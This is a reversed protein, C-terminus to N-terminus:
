NNIRLQGEVWRNMKEELVHLPLCGENLVENHFKRIDFKDGLKQEAKARLERIKLQGIKYGLAQGPIAIYREIESTIAAEDEGENDLSFQIAQERTWGKMHMGVDVVLRIARHMEESLAGFYQYPDKYIGLEKGLSETYLAWGEGYAGYWIYRRFEPLSTNEITLMNQYHHGPIAEHLFLDEMAFTNYKAPNPIPTYFIGPRSGDATGQNYEASASAERFKETQRVEFKSRPTKDFLKSLQPKIANHINNFSDIVSAASKFPFFQKDTRMFEFFAKMDGEFGTEAKIKEMEAHLRKVESMGLNFISDPTLDTTTWYKALFAYQEKGGPVEGLGISTRCNPIYENKIFDYMMKYTSIINKEISASYLETLRKKDDTSFDAPFEKVPLYFTNEKLPVTMQEMQPLVKKMLVQPVTIGEKIGTRMNAVAQECWAPFKSMRGLFNEYDKVTKFPQNGQGSGMVPFSLTFSWFQNIPIYHDPFNYSQVSNSMEWHLIDYTVKDEESLSTYDVKTLIDLQNQYFSKTKARFEESIDVFLQDNYNNNGNATAELPFLKLREDYYNKAIDAMSTKTQENTTAQKNTCSNFSVILTVLLINLYKM